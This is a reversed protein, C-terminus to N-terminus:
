GCRSRFLPTDSGRVQRWGVFVGNSIAEFWTDGTSNNRYLIDSTGTGFFDGTGIVGCSADSGGIQNWGAFAGNNMMEHWTDGTSNNRFLIDSTNGGTFNNAHPITLTASTFEGPNFGAVGGSQVGAITLEHTGVVTGPGLTTVDTGNFFVEGNLVKLALPNLGSSARGIIGALEHTDAAMGDTVWLGRQGSANIGQFLIHGFAAL